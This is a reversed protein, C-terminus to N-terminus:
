KKLDNVIFEHFKTMTSAKLGVIDKLQSSKICWDIRNEYDNLKAYEDSYVKKDEPTKFIYIKADDYKFNGKDDIDIHKKMLSSLTKGYAKEMKSLEAVTETIGMNLEFNSIDLSGLENLGFIVRSIDINLVVTEIRKKDSKTEKTNIDTEM